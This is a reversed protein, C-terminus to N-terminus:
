DPSCCIVLLVLLSGERTVLTLDQGKGWNVFPLVQGGSGM